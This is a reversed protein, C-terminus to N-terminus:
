INSVMVYKRDPKAALKWLLEQVLKVDTLVTGDTIYKASLFVTDVDATSNPQSVTSGFSVGNESHRNSVCPIHM